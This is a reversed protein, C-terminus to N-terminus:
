ERDRDELDADALADFAQTRDPDEAPAPDAPVAPRAGAAPEDDLLRAGPRRSRRPAPAEPAPAPVPDPTAAAASAAPAPADATAGPRRDVVPVRRRRDRGRVDLVVSVQAVSMAAGGAMVLAAVLAVWAGAERDADLAAPPPDIVQVAVILLAAGAVWPLWGAAAPWVHDLRGLALAAAAAALAALLMDLAEFASWASLGPSFWDLFLSVFLLLAGGLVLGASLDVKQSV